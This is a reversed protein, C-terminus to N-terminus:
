AGALGYLSVVSEDGFYGARIFNVDATQTCYGAGYSSESISSSNDFTCTQAFATKYKGTDHLNHLWVHGIGREAEAGSYGSISGGFLLENTATGKLEVRTANSPFLYEARYFSTQFTSGGDTSLRIRMFYGQTNTYMSFNNYTLLYTEYNGISNFDVVATGTETTHTAILELSGFDGTWQEALLLDTVDNVEFIGTNANRAQTPSSPVYGYENSKNVM